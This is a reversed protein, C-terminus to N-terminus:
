KTWVEGLERYLKRSVYNVTPNFYPNKDTVTVNKMEKRDRANKAVTNAQELTDCRIVLRNKKGKAMGWGSLFKDIMTVYFNM